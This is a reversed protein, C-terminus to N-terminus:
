QFCVFLGFLELSNFFDETSVTVKHWDYKSDIHFQCESYDSAGSDFLFRAKKVELATENNRFSIRELFKDEGIVSNAGSNCSAVLNDLYEREERRSKRASM